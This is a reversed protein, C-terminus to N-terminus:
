AKRTVVRYHSRPGDRDIYCGQLHRRGEQPDFGTRGHLVRNNDFMMLEGPGLLFRLEYDPHSLLEGLRRRAAHFRRLIAEPMVPTSDLRPSYHIGDFRGEQDIHILSRRAQLDADKDTFRFGVPIRSLLEFGEPDEARLVESVMLGDVLTSLGGSTENVLCHLLQIGPVPERYPNDTHPALPVPRYALDNSGPRSYVEFYRGFNTDRVQGFRGAIALISDPETPTDRLVIYGWTLFAHLAARFAGTGSAVAPWDFRDRPAAASTWAVPAPLGDDPEAAAALAALSFTGAYGDSFVLRVAGDGAPEVSLLALDDPLRHPNFLRQLTVADLHEPDASRERLWLAPLPMPEGAGALLLRAGETDAVIRVAM